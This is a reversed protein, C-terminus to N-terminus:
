GEIMRVGTGDAADYLVWVTVGGTVTVSDGDWEKMRLICQGRSSVVSGIDPMGDTLRVEQTLEREQVQWLDRRLCHMMRKEFRHEM